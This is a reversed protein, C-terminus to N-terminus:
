DGALERVLDEHPTLDAKGTRYSEGAELLETLEAATMDEDDVFFEFATNGVATEGHTNLTVVATPRTTATVPHENQDDQNITAEGSLSLTSM